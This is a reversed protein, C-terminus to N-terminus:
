RRETPGRQQLRPDFLVGGGDRSDDHPTHSASTRNPVFLQLRTARGAVLVLLTIILLLSPAGGDGGVSCGHHAGGGGSGGNDGNGGSGSGDDGGAALDDAVGGDGAGGAAMDGPEPIAGGICTDDQGDPATMCGMACYESVVNGSGDCHARRLQAEDCNWVAGLGARCAQGVCQAGFPKALQVCEAAGCDSPCTGNPRAFVVDPPARDEAEDNVYGKGRIWLKSSGGGDLHIADAAGHALLVDQLGTGSCATSDTVVFIFQKRDASVGIATCDRGEELKAHNWDHRQGGAVLYGGGTAADTFQAMFAGDSEHGSSDYISAKGRAWGLTTVCNVAEGYADSYNNGFGRAAGCPHNIPGGFFNANIAVTAGEEAAHTAVTIQDGTDAAHPSSVRVETAISDLDVVVTHYGNAADYVIGPSLTEALAPASACILLLCLLRM